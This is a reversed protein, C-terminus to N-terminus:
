RAVGAAAPQPVAPHHGAAALAERAHGAARSLGGTPDAGTGGAAVRTLAAVGAPGILALAAAANHAVRHAPDALLQKLQPVAAADGLHGLSRAAVVRLPLPEHDATAAVLPGLARPLGIRGVARAARIRVELSPDSRLAAVLSRGARVAGTLGLIEVALSRALDAGPGTAATGDLAAVLASEAGPGLRALSHAVIRPPVGHGSGLAALLAPAAAPDGVAGLARAAVQRVDPDRDALLDVLAPVAASAGTAGLLEAARARGVAGPRRTRRLARELTGRRQLLTVLADRSDGRLKGLLALVSPEVARWERRPLAALRGLAAEDMGDGGALELLAPRLPAAIRARRRKLAHRLGRRAVIASALVALLGALSLLALLLGASLTM